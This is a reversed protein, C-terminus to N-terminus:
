LVEKFAKRAKDEQVREKEAERKDFLKKGQCLAVEVKCLGEKLYFKLPIITLREELKLRM